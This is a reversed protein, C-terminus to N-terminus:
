DSRKNSVSFGGCVCTANITLRPANKENTPKRTKDEWGGFIPVGKVKVVWGEPVKIEAGGFAAFVTLTAEGDIKADHLDLDVGGFIATIDGGKYHHSVSRVNQGAFLVSANTADDDDLEPKSGLSTSQFLISLGVAILIVPWFLSWLNIDVYGLQRLLAAVGFVFFLLPWVWQRPNSIIGIVGIGIPVMPWWQRVIDAFNIVGLGNLFLGVGLAIVLLGTFIRALSKTKM